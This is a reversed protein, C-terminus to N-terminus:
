CYYKKDQSWFPQLRKYDKSEDSVGLM